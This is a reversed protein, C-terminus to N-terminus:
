WIVAVLEGVLKPAAPSGAPKDTFAAVPKIEPVGVAGPVEATVNLAVLLAPVPLAVNVKVTVAAAGTTVLARVAM